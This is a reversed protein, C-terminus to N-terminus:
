GSLPEVKKSYAFFGLWAEPMAFLNFASQLDESDLLLTEDDQLMLGAMTGIYPLTDQAGLIPSTVSNTPVLISIFRQCAVIEGNIMKEKKVAGAGNTILHGSRDRPVLGDDVVKMM